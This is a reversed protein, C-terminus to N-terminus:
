RTPGMLRLVPHLACWAYPKSHLTPEPYTRCVLTRPELVASAGISSWPMVVSSSGVEAHAGVDIPGALSLSLVSVCECM